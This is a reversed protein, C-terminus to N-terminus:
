TFLPIFSIVPMLSLKYVMKVAEELWKIFIVM